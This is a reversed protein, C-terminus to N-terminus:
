TVVANTDFRKWNTGDSYLPQTLTTSFIVAGAGHGSASPYSGSAYGAPKMSGTVSAGNGSLLLRTVAGGAVTTGIAFAFSSGTLTIPTWNLTDGSTAYIQGAGGSTYQSLFGTGSAGSILGGVSGMTGGVTLNGSTGLAAFSATGTFTPSAKPALAALATTLGTVQSQAITPIDSAALTYWTTAYDVSSTKKLFQGATGGTPVGQGPAGPSGPTGPTGGTGPEGPEGQPGRRGRKNLSQAPARSSM